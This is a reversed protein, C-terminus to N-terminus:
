LDAQAQDLLHQHCGPIDTLLQKVGVLARARHSITAKLEAPLQAFTTGFGDPIFIPDFGFGRTGAPKSGIAGSCNGTVTRTVGGLTLAFACRFVARRDSIDKMEGLLLDCRESDPIRSGGYRATYLGPRNDLAIVEIGSDDALASYGTISSYFEAKITANEEYTLGNEEPEQSVASEDLTILRIPLEKLAEKIEYIKGANRTGILLTLTERNTM